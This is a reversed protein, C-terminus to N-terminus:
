FQFYIFPQPGAGSLARLGYLSVVVPAVGARVGARERLGPSASAGTWRFSTARMRVWAGLVPATLNRGRGAPSCTSLVDLAAAFSDARFFVWLVCVIQLTIVGPFSLAAAAWRAPALKLRDWQREM